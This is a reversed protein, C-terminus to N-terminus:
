FKSKANYHCVVITRWSASQAKGCGVKTAENLILQKYHGCVGHPTCTKSSNNYNQSENNWANVADLYGKDFVSAYLNEGYRGQSHVSVNIKALYEAHKQASNALSDSWSVSSSTFAEARIQNQKQIMQSIDKLGGKGETSIDKGCSSLFLLTLLTLFVKFIHRTKKM